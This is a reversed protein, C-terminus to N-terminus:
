SSIFEDSLKSYVSVHMCMLAFLIPVQHTMLRRIASRSAKFEKQLPGEFMGISYICVWQSGANSSFSLHPYSVGYLQPESRQFHKSFM